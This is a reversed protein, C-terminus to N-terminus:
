LYEWYYFFISRYLHRWPDRISNGISIRRFNRTSCRWFDATFSRCSICLSIWILIGPPVRLHIRSQVGIPIEPSIGISIVPLVYAPIGPPARLLLGPQIEVPVGLSVAISIIPPVWVPIGPPVRLLGRPHVKVPIGPSVGITIGPSVIDRHFEYFPFSWNGNIGKYSNGTSSRSTNRTSNGSSERTPVGSLIGSLKYRIQQFFRWNPKEPPIGQPYRIHFELSVEKRFM